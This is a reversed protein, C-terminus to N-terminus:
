FMFIGKNLPIKINIKHPLSEAIVYGPIKENKYIFILFFREIGERFYLLKNERTPL